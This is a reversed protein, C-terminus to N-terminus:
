IKDILSGANEELRFDSDQGVVGQGLQWGKAEMITYCFIIDRLNKQQLKCNSGLTIHCHDVWFQLHLVFLLHFIEEFIGGRSHLFFYQVWTVRVGRCDADVLNLRIARDVGVITGSPTSCLHCPIQFWSSLHGGALFWSDTALHRLHIESFKVGRFVAFPVELPELLVIGLPSLPLTTTTTPSM